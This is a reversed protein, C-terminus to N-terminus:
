DNGREVMNKLEAIDIYMNPESSYSEININDSEEAVKLLNSVCEKLTNLIEIKDNM